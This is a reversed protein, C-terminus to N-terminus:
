EESHTTENIDSEIELPVLGTVHRDFVTGKSDKLIVRRPHAIDSSVIETVRALRWNERRENEDVLLVIQGIKPGTQSTKWKSRKLLSGIYDTKFADWFKDLLLHTSSWSKKLSEGDGTPPLISTSSNTVIYPFLFHAPTLVLFDDAEASAEVLPRRNMVGAAAQLLTEFVDLELVQDGIVSKLHKKVLGILREWVGGYSGCKAPGFVWTIGIDSLQKDLNDKDWKQVAEKLERDASRFNSGNDSYIKKVSPFQSNLRVLANITTASTMDKLPFLAVARTSFCTVMLVWRKTTGRGGHRVPFHGFVDIGSVSFPAVIQTRDAPLDGQRQPTPSKFNRQCSVCKAIVSNVANKGGLIYFKQRLLSYTQLRTSHMNKTHYERILARVNEDEANPLIMPFKLNYSFEEAKGIRGGARLLNDKDMFPSLNTLRSTKSKLEKLANPSMVGLKILTVIENEFHVSQIASVLLKEAKEKEEHDLTIYKQKIVENNKRPRLRTTPLPNKKAEVKDKLMLIAKRILGISRVKNSWSSKLKAVRLPWPTPEAKSVEVKPEEITSGVALLQLPFVVSAEDLDQTTPAPGATTAAIAEGTAPDQSPDPKPKTEPRAPPWEHTELRLFPPGQHYMEWKSYEDANIGKSAIDAPNQASPVHRWESPHSLLRISKIRFNEFTKFRRSYDNLWNLVTLSDSFMIKRTFTEGAYRCLHDRWLAALKAACLELRPISDCHPEQNKVPNKLMNLPVVHAKGMLFAVNIPTGGGQLYRRVYAVMGYGTASADCFIVLDALSDELGLCSTWRPISINALHGIAAKIKNFEYLIEPPVPDKWGIGCENVQQFMAKVRLTFPQGVGLPDFFSSFWSCLDTKTKVEKLHKKGIKIFLTDKVSDWGVGLVKDEPESGGIARMQAELTDKGAFAQNVVDALTQPDEEPDEQGCTPAEGGGANEASYADQPYDGATENGPVAASHSQDERKDGHEESAAHVLPTSETATNTVRGDQRQGSVQSPIQPPLPNEDAVVEPYNSQWKTMEFGAEKLAKKLTNKIEIAEETSDFSNLFDDM